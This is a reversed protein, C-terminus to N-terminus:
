FLLADQMSFGALKRTFAFRREIHYVFQCDSQVCVLRRLCFSAGSLGFWGACIYTTVGKRSKFLEERLLNRM